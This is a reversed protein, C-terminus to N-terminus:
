SCLSFDELKFHSFELLGKENVYEVHCYTSHVYVESVYVLNNEQECVTKYGKVLFYDNAKEVELILKERNHKNVIKFTSKGSIVLYHYLDKAHKNLLNDAYMKLAFNLLSM